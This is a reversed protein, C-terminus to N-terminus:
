LKKFLRITQEGVRKGFLEFFDKREEVGNNVGIGIPGLHIYPRGCGAGSSYTVMGRVLMHCIMSQLAIDGGGHMANATAFAAGLKGGLQCSWDEDFWKKFQWCMSAVYTPTGMIVAESDNIFQSDVSEVQNLNMLRIEFDGVTLLGAKIYTAAKETNGTKSFYLITIKM